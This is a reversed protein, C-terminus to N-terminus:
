DPMQYKKKTNTETNARGLARVREYAAGDHTPVIILDPDKAALDHLRWLADSLTDPDYDAFRSLPKLKHSPLNIADVSWATDGVFLLRRGHTRTVFIGISGPTHGPLPVFVISGDGYLDHSAPFNEVPPGDWKITAVLAGRLHDVMAVPPDDNAHASAFALDEESMIVRPHVLDTLGSTHDWHMHTLIVWAIPPNGLATLSAKLSGKGRPEYRLMARNLAPFRALDDHGHESLGADILLNGKPHRILYSTHVTETFPLCHAEGAAACRPTAQAGMLM